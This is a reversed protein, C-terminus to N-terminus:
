GSVNFVNTFRRKNLIEVLNSGGDITRFSPGQIVYIIPGCLGVLVHIEKLYFIFSYDLSGPHTVVKYNSLFFVFYGMMKEGNRGDHIFPITGLAWRYPTNPM